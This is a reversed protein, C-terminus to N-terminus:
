AAARRQETREIREAKEGDLTEVLVNLLRKHEESDRQSTETLVTTMDRVSSAMEKIANENNKVVGTLLVILQDTQATNHKQAEQLQEWTATIRERLLTITEDKLRLAEAHAAKENEILLRFVLSLAGAVAALMGSVVFIIQTATFSIAQDAQALQAAQAVAVPASGVSVTALGAVLLVLPLTM